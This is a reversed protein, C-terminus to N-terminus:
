TGLDSQIRLVIKASAPSDVQYGVASNSAATLTITEDDSAYVQSANNARSAGSLAHDFDGMTYVRVMKDGDAGSSNDVEEYAIGGFTDSAVLGRAFGSTVGVFAGKYVHTSAKVPLSRLEQDVYRDVQRNASLAM